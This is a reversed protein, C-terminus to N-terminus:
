GRRLNAPEERLARVVAVVLDDPLDRPGDDRGSAAALRIAERYDRLYRVCDPCVGLHTDFRRRVAAPLAGDLYDALFRIFDRCTM